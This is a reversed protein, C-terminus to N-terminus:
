FFVMSIVFIFVGVPLIKGVVVLPKTAHASSQRPKDTEADACFGVDQPVSTVFKLTLM